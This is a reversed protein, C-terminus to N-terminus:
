VPTSDPDRRDFYRHDRKLLVIGQLAFGNIIRVPATEEGPAGTDFIKSAMCLKAPMDPPIITNNFNAWLPAGTPASGPKIISEGRDNIIVDEALLCGRYYQGGSRGYIVQKKVRLAINLDLAIGDEGLARNGAGALEVTKLTAPDYVEEDLKTSVVAHLFQVSQLHIMRESAVVRDILAQLEPAEVPGDFVAQYNNVWSAKINRAAWSKYIRVDFIREAM